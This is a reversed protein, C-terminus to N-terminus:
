PRVDVAFGLDRVRALRAEGFIPRPDAEDRATVASPDPLLALQELVPAPPDLQLFDVLRAIRDRPSTCLEDYNLLLFTGAPMARSREIAQENAAIWYDLAAIPESLSTSVDFLSGWRRVQSLNQSQAMHLGNRIVHVYRLGAFHNQLQPLFVHSNPEKWGWYPAEPPPRRRSRLLSAARARIWEPSEDDPLQGTHWWAGCRAVVEAVVQRDARSPSLGGTMARELLDLSRTIVAADPSSEGPRWRPLKCLLTFWLNDGARNLDTGTHVGLERIIEAVVRTGSGGVGGVVLPGLPPSARPHSRSFPM